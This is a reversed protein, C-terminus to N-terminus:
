IGVPPRCEHLFQGVYHDRPGEKFQAAGQICTVNMYAQSLLRMPKKKAPCSAMGIWGRLKSPNNFIGQFEGELHDKGYM